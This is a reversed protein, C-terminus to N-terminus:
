DALRFMSFTNTSPKHGGNFTFDDLGSTCFFQKILGGGFLNSDVDNSLRTAIQKAFSDPGTDEGGVPLNGKLSPNIRDVLVAIQYATLFCPTGNQSSGASSYRYKRLVQAAVPRVIEWDLM